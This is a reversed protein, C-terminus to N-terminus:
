RPLLMLAQGTVAVNDITANGIANVQFILSEGMGRLKRMSRIDLSRYLFYTSAGAPIAATGNAFQEAVMLHEWWMYDLDYPATVPSNIVGTGGSVDDKDSTALAVLCGDQSTPTVGLSIHVAIHIVIRGITIDPLNISIGFATKFDSLLDYADLTANPGAVYKEFRAWETRRHARRGGVFRRRYRRM